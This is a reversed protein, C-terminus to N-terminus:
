FSMENEYIPPILLSFIVNKAFTMQLNMTVGFLIEMEDRFNM